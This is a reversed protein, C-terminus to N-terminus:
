GKVVGFGNCDSCIPPPAYGNGKCSPCKTNVFIQKEKKKVIGFGFCDDCIKKSEHGTGQCKNCIFKESFFDSEKEQFEKKPVFNNYGILETYAEIIQQTKAEADPSKNVDPHNQKILNRYAKKISEIDSGENINLVEYPSM